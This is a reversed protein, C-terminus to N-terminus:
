IVFETSGLPSTKAPSTPASPSSQPMSAAEISSNLRVWTLLGVGISPQRKRFDSRDAQQFAGLM